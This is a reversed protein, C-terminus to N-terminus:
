EETFCRAFFARLLDAVAEPQEEASLHGASPVVELTADDIADALRRACAPPTAADHEGVLVLAPHTISAADIRDRGFVARMAYGLQRKDFSLAQEVFAETMERRGTLTEPSYMAELLIKKPLRGFHTYGWGLAKYKLRNVITERAHNTDLLALGAVREPERLALKMATMGGTSLGCLLAKDVREQDLIALWDDVLDDLTFPGRATSKGHGRLEVNIIMHEDQLFPLVDRWMSRSCFLSHGLVLPPGLGLVDYAVTANPREIKKM